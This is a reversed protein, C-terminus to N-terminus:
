RPAPIITTTILDTQRASCRPGVVTVRLTKAGATPVVIITAPRGNYRATDVLRPRQSGVARGLCSRLITAGTAPSLAPVPSPAKGSVRALTAQVQTKLQGTRYNTGSSVLAAPASPGAFTSHAKDGSSAVAHRQRPGMETGPAAAHRVGRAAAAGSATSTQGTGGGSVLRSVGYGGGGIVVIAAAAVAIRLAPRSRGPVRAPGARRARRGRRGDAADGPQAPAAGAAAGGPAEAAAGAAEGAGAAQAAAGAPTLASRAAAEAALVAEIRATLADPMPPAPARALLGPVEALQADLGACQACHALHAAVQGAKRRPLLEERFAALTESDVHARL